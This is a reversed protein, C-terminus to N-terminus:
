SQTEYPRLFMQAKARLNAKTYSGRLAHTSSLLM